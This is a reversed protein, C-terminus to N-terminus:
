RQAKREDKLRLNRAVDSEESFKYCMYVTMGFFLCPFGFVFLDFIFSAAM